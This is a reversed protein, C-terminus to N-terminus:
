QGAEVMARLRRALVDREYALMFDEHAQSWEGPDTAKSLHQIYPGDKSEGKLPEFGEGVAAVPDYGADAAVRCAAAADTYKAYIPWSDQLSALRIKVKPRREAAAARQFEPVRALAGLIGPLEGPNKASIRGEDMGCLLDASWVILGNSHAAARVAREYEEAPALVGGSDSELPNPSFVMPIDYYNALARHLWYSEPVRGPRTLQQFSLVADVPRTTRYYDPKEIFVAWSLPGTFITWEPMNERIYAYWQKAKDDYPKESWLDVGFIAKQSYLYQLRGIVKEDPDKSPGLAFIAPFGRGKDPDDHYGSTVFRGWTYGRRQMWEWQESPLRRYEYVGAGAPVVLDPEPEPEPEPAPAAEHIELTVPGASTRITVTEAPVEVIAWCFLFAVLAAMVMRKRM